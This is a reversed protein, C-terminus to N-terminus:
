FELSINSNTVESLQPNQAIVEFHNVYERNLIDSVRLELQVQADYDVQIAGSYSGFLKNNHMIISKYDSPNPYAYKPTYEIYISGTINSIPLEIKGIPYHVLFEESQPDVNTETLVTNNYMVSVSGYM